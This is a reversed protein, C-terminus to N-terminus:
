IKGISKIKGKDDIIICGFEDMKQSPDIIRVNFLIKEKM